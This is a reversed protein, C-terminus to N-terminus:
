EFGLFKAGSQKRPAGATSARGGPDRFGARSKLGQVRPDNNFAQLAAQRQQPTMNQMLGTLDRFGKALGTNAATTEQPPLKWQPAPLGMERRTNETRTRLQRMREKNASDMSWSSPKNAEVFQRLETDSQSGVGPVRFAALGQEALGAAAADFQSNAQTPLYEGVSGLGMFGFGDQSNSYLDQTRNIQQVLSDLNGRQVQAKRQDESLTPTAGLTRNKIGAEAEAASAEALAKRIAADRTATKISNDIENGRANTNTNYIDADMKPAQRDFTPDAPMQPGPAPSILRVANGSADTEWVNGAEDKARGM